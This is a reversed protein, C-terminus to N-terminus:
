SKRDMTNIHKNTSIFKPSINTMVTIRKNLANEKKSDSSARLQRSELWLTYNGKFPTCGGILETKTGICYYLM